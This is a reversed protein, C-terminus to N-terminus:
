AQEIVVETPIVDITKASAFRAFEESLKSLRADITKEVAQTDPKDLLKEKKTLLETSIRLAVSAKIPIRIIAGSKPDYQHDGNDIRDETAKLALDSSCM